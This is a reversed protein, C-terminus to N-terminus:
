YILVNLHLAAERWEQKYDKKIDEVFLILFNMKVGNTEIGRLITINDSKTYMDRTENLDTLSAFTMPMSPQIKWEGKHNDILDKLYPRIIDFYNIIKIEDVKM